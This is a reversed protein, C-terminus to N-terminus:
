GAEEADEAVVDASSPRREHSQVVKKKSAKGTQTESIRAVKAKPEPEHAGSTASKRKRDCKDVGATVKMAESWKSYVLQFSLSLTQFNELSCITSQWQRLFVLLVNM